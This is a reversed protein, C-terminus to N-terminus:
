STWQDTAPPSPPTCFSVAMSPCCLRIKWIMAFVGGGGGSASAVEEM